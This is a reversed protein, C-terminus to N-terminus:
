VRYETIGEKDKLKGEVCVVKKQSYDALVRVFEFQSLDDIVAEQPEEQGNELKSKKGEPELMDPPLAAFKRCNLQQRQLAVRLLSKHLYQAVLM